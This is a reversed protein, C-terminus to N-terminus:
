SASGTGGSKTAPTGAPKAEGPEPERLKISARMAKGLAPLVISGHGKVLEACDDLTLEDHDRRTAGFVLAASTKLKVSRQQVEALVVEAFVDAYSKDLLDEVAFWASNNMVLHLTREAVEGEAPLIADAEGILANAM